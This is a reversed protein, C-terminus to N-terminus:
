VFFESRSIRTKKDPWGAFHDSRSRVHTEICMAAHLITFLCLSSMITSSDRYAHAERSPRSICGCSFPGDDYPETKNPVRGQWWQGAMGAHQEPFKTMADGRAHGHWIHQMRVLRSSISCYQGFLAQETWPAFMAIRFKIYVFLNHTFHSAEWIM